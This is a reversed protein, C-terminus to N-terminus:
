LRLVRSGFLMAMAFVGLVISSLAGTKTATPKGNAAEGRKLVAAVGAVLAIVGLAADGSITGAYALLALAIIAVVDVVTHCITVALNRTQDSM